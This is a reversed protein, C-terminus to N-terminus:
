ARRESGVADLSSTTPTLKRAVILFERHNSLGSRIFV